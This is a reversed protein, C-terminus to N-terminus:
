KVKSYQTYGAAQTTVGVKDRDAPQAMVKEHEWGDLSLPSTAKKEHDSCHVRSKESNKIKDKRSIKNKFSPLFIHPYYRHRCIKDEWSECTFQCPEKTVYATVVSVLATM